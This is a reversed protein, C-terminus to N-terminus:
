FVVPATPENRNAVAVLFDVREKLGEDQLACRATMGALEPLNNERSLHALVFRMTGGRVLQRLTEACGDNSLHGKDGKIRQKLYYPYPGAELMRVDYNSELMVCGCGELAMRVEESVFGLDTAVAATKGNEWGIRFGICEASDHPSHFPTLQMDFVQVPGNITHLQVREDALGGQQLARRTGESLYVPVQLRRALVSLGRVHDIHEHTIFIAGIGEPPIGAADMALLTQKCSKGVDILVGRGGSGAFTCNGSSGSYLPVLKALREVKREQLSFPM